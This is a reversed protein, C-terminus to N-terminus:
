QQVGLEGGEFVEALLGFHLGAEGGKFGHVPFGDVILANMPNASVHIPGYVRAM